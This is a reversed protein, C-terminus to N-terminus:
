KQQENFIPEDYGSNKNEANKKLANLKARLENREPATEDSLQKAIQAPSKSFYTAMTCQGNPHDLPLEEPKFIKGERELCIDCVRSNNSTLWLIGDALPNQETVEKVSQQYAHTITTRALRQANYDVVKSSGPYLRSWKYDKKASPNVYRELDKAIDYTPTGVAIGKAIIKRIDRNTANNIEWIRESLKWKSKYLSGNVVSAVVDKPVYSFGSKIDIGFKSLFENNKEVVKESVNTIGDKITRYSDLAVNKYADQLQGQLSKLFSKQYSTSKNNITDTDLKSLKKSVDDYVSKYFKKLRKEVTESIKKHYIFSEGFELPM